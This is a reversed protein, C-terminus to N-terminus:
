AARIEIQRHAQSLLFSHAITVSQPQSPRSSEHGPASQGLINLAGDKRTDGAIKCSGAPGPGEDVLSGTMVVVPTSQLLPDAHLERLFALRNMRPMTMDLFVLVASRKHHYSAEYRISELAEGGDCAEIIPNVIRAAKFTGRFATRDIQDHAVILITAPKCDASVGDQQDFPSIHASNRKCFEISIRGDCSIRQRITMFENLKRPPLADPAEPADSPESCAESVDGLEAGDFCDPMYDDRCSEIMGFTSVITPLSFNDMSIAKTYEESTRHMIRALRFGREGGDLRDRSVPV